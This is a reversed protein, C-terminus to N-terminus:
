ACDIFLPLSPFSYAQRGGVAVRSAIHAPASYSASFGEPAAFQFKEFLGEISM